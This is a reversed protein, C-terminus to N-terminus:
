CPSLPTGTGKSKKSRQGRQGTALVEKMSGWVPTHHEHQALTDQPGLPPHLILEMGRLLYGSIRPFCVFPGLIWSWRAHTGYVGLLLLWVEPSTWSAM